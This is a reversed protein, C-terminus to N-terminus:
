AVQCESQVRESNFDTLFVAMDSPSIRQYHVEEIIRSYGEDTRVGYFEFANQGTEKDFVMGCYGCVDLGLQRAMFKNFQDWDSVQEYLSELEM